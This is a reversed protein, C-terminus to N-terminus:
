HIPSDAAMGVLQAEFQELKLPKGFLYGQFIYCDNNLLIQQQDYTEVGEAIVELNLNKAMAIITRVITRDSSDSVLDRVFSQDIKLQDLPLRKLYQLSSYGTGFDDLSFSVGIEKLAHMTSITSEINELLISETLELKLTNPEIASQHVAQHVKSVFDDQRFQKASVNVSLMLKATLPNQQWAKLQACANEIVWQGIPIILETEEALPIFKIPSILGQEPHIWRILAEAGLAQGLHNVQIQYHLQFESQDIAKRLESELIVRANIAEQMKPDFFRLTNRGATKAQYMAIDAQKLLEDINSQLDNFLTAGISATSHYKRAELQYPQNLAELLKEGITETHAAAELPNESLDELMVVFEDGGLRAVTDGERVCLRLRAAVQNLLLDGVGHGLTDNLTKFHDLDIFLLAGQRRGRACTGLAHTLRDILLRRNPLQTLPDYFALNKIEEEAAKSITIDNFTAVYNTITNNLDQVVSITLYEPFIEGNKRRNWIEGEWHGTQLLRQWMDTFFAPTHKGSNLIHPTNGIVEEKSYGTIKTFARNVRLIIGSADTVLMGEQSEFAIAAIKLENEAKQRETINIFTVIAGHVQDDILIPQSWYEVPIHTGDARWFVEDAAHTGRNHRFAEYINSEVSPYPSGDVFSHQIIEHIHRGIVENTNQYGLIELFSRNVFKCRGEADIGFAGEAMSNLLSYMEEMTSRIAQTRNQVESELYENKDSLAQDQKEVEDLMQNFQDTFTGLEDDALKKVRLSYQRTSAIHKASESLREIPVMINKTMRRVLFVSLFLAFLIATLFVILAYLIVVWVPTLDAELRVKGLLKENIMVPEEINILMEEKFASDLLLTILWTSFFDDKPQNNAHQFLRQSLTKGQRTIIEAAIIDQRPALANLTEESTKKDNFMLASQSNLATIRALTQLEIQARRQNSSITYVASCLFMISLALVVLSLAMRHIAKAISTTKIM